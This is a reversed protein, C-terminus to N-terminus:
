VQKQYSFFVPLEELGSKKAFWVLDEGGTVRARGNQGLAVYVPMQAGDKIFHKYRGDFDTKNGRYYRSCLKWLESVPMMVHYQMQNTNQPTDYIQVGGEAWDEIVSELSVRPTVMEPRYPEPTAAAYGLGGWERLPADALEPLGRDRVTVGIVNKQIAPVLVSDRYTDRAQQGYLEFKIEYVRYISDIGVKRELEVVNKVTTVEPIGRIQNEIQEDRGSLVTDVICGMKVKYIRLDIPEREILMRDIRSIQDELSENMTGKLTHVFASVDGAVLADMAKSRQEPSLRGLESEAQASEEPSYGFRNQLRAMLNPENKWEAGFSYSGANAVSAHRMQSRVMGDWQNPTNNDNHWSGYPAASGIALPRLYNEIAALKEFKSFQPWNQKVFMVVLMVQEAAPNGHDALSDYIDELSDAYQSMLTGDLVSREEVQKKEVAHQVFEQYTSTLANQIQNPYSDTFKMFEFAGTIDAEDSSAEIIVKMKIEVPLSKETSRFNPVLRVQAHGFDVGDYSPRAYEDGFDFEMQAEVYGNAADQLPKLKEAMINMFNVGPYVEKAGAGPLVDASSGFVLRLAELTNGLIPPLSDLPILMSGGPKFRYWIEGDDDLDGNEDFGLVEWTRLAEGDAQLGPLLRDLDNEAIFNENALARRIKEYIGDYNDGIDDIIYDAFSDYEDPSSEEFSMRFRITLEGADVEWEVHETHEPFTKELIKTFYSYNSSEYNVSNPITAYDREEDVWHYGDRDSPDQRGKWGVDFGFVVDAGGMVYPYETDGYESVEADFHINAPARNIATNLVEELEDAAVEFQDNEENFEHEVSGSYQDIKQGSMSFFLNLIDGDPNDSWSGGYRVLYEERPLELHDPESPDIFIEKQQEWAWERVAQRFRETQSGYLRQEPVAIFDGSATDLFKRLRVRATASIGPISRDPDRFIEQKDYDELPRPAPLDGEQPWTRQNNLKAHVADRVMDPTIFATMESSYNPGDRDPRGGSWRAIEARILGVIMEFQDADNLYKHTADFRRQDALYRWLARQADHKMPETLSQSQKRLFDNLDVTKVMYAILGNGKSEEVACKFYESGESHCSSITGVDSMRLVDVPHRSLIIRWEDGDINGSFANQAMNWGDEDRTYFTQKKRWWQLLEPRMRGQKVGHAIARTMTTRNTKQITEGKRPGAPIKFDFTKTLDLSAVQVDEEYEEGTGLRRKKQKVWKKEFTAGGVAPAWGETKLADVIEILNKTDGEVLPIAVRLHGGFLDDFETQIQTGHDSMYDFAVEINQRNMEDLRRPGKKRKTQRLSDFWLETAINM